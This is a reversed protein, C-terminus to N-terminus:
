VSEVGVEVQEPEPFGSRLFIDRTSAYWTAGCYFNRWLPRRLNRGAFLVGNYLWCGAFSGTMDNLFNQWGELLSGRQNSWKLASRLFVEGDNETECEVDFVKEFEDRTGMHIVGNFVLAIDDVVIPQNNAMDKWDGSTSYRCHAVAPLGPNFFDVIEGVMAAKHVYLGQPHGPQALGYAHLGRVQSQRMLDGFAKKACHIDVESENAVAHEEDHPKYGIVGCM